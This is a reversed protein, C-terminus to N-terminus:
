PRLTKALPSRPRNSQRDGTPIDRRARGCTRSYVYVWVQGQQDHQFYILTGSSRACVSPGDPKHRQRTMLCDPRTENEHWFNLTYKGNFMGCAREL